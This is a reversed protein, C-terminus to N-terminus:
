DAGIFRHRAFAAFGVAGRGEREEGESPSSLTIMGRRAMVMGQRGVVMGQRLIM